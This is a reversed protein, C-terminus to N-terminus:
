KLKDSVIQGDKIEIIRRAATAVSPDHTILVITHGHDRNLKQFTELVVQGIKSDLNGTPEDALLIGPNNVLSRAIAVRQMQGGSLQNSLHNWREKELGVDTLAKVAKELREARTVRKDYIFPLTVNRLVTARSLLNFSQFVFGIKKSRIDALEDDSLTSIDQGDLIYKGTSPRDLAGLIHMLTSKGSGSPGIIAVFQGKDIKFSVDRLVTLPNGGLNYTKTLKELEIM